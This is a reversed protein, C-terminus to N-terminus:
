KNQFSKIIFAAIFSELISLPLAYFLLGFPLVGLNGLAVWMMLFAFFWSIFTTQILTFKKAIMFVAIAFLLSWIGWVAGNVPASPFTLGLEHYHTTWFSKVIFENRAFESISIWIASLLVPLITKKIFRM